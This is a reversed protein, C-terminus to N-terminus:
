EEGNQRKKKEFFTFVIILICHTGFLPKYFDNALYNSIGKLIYFPFKLTIIGYFTHFTM